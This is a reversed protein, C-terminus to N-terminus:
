QFNALHGLPQIGIKPSAQRDVILVTNIRCPRAQALHPFVSQELNEGPASAYHNM